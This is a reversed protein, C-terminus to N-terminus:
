LRPTISFIKPLWLCCLLSLIISQASTRRHMVSSKSFEDEDGGYQMYNLVNYIVVFAEAFDDLATIRNVWWTTSPTALKKHNLPYEEMKKSIYQGRKPFSNFFSAIKKAQGLMNRVVPITCAKTVVLNLCHSSCHVYLAKPNKKLIRGSVGKVKSSMSSARDYSQGRCDALPLGVKELTDEVNVALAEGTVGKKCDVYKIFRENIEKSAEVYRLVVPM